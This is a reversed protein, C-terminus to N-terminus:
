TTCRPPPAPCCPPTLPSPRSPACSPTSAPCSRSPAPPHQNNLTLRPHTGPHSVSCSPPWTLPTQVKCPGVSPLVHVGAPCATARAKCLWQLAATLSVGRVESVKTYVNGMDPDDAYVSLRRGGTGPGTATAVATAAQGLLDGRVTRPEDAREGGNRPQQLLHRRAPSGEPLLAELGVLGLDALLHARLRRHLAVAAATAPSGEAHRLVGEADLAGQQWGASVVESWASSGGDGDGGLLLETRQRSTLLQRRHGLVTTIGTLAATSTTAAGVATGDGGALLTGTPTITPGSSGAAGSVNALASGPDATSPPPPPSPSVLLQASNFDCADVLMAWM